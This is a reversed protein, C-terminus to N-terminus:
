SPQEGIEAFVSSWRLRHSDEIYDPIFGLGLYTRVAPVRFDDTGLFAAAYGRERMYHLVALTVLRGLGRGRHAPKACVMHVQAAHVQAASIGEPQVDYACATAVAEGAEGTRMAFFCGDAMFPETDTLEKRCKEATWDTGIGTNMIECWAAEDGPRYTRLAYGDPVSIEPLDELDPRMMRLQQEPM